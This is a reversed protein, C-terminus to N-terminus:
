REAKNFRGTLADLLLDASAGPPMVTVACGPRVTEVVWVQLIESGAGADAPREWVFNVREGLQGGPGIQVLDKQDSRLTFAGERLHGGAWEAVETVEGRVFMQSM